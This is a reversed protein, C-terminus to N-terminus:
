TVGLLVYLSDDFSICYVINSQWIFTIFCRICLRLYDFFCDSRRRRIMVLWCMIRQLNLWLLINSVRKKGSIRELRLVVGM